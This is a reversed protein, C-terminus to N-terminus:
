EPNNDPYAEDDWKIGALNARVREERLATETDSLRRNAARFALDQKEQATLEAVSCAVISFIAIFVINRTM